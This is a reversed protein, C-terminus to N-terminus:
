LALNVEVRSIFDDIVQTTKWPDVMHYLHERFLDEEKENTVDVIEVNSSQYLRPVYKAIGDKDSKLILVPINNKKMNSLGKRKDFHKSERLASYIQIVFVKAPLGDLAKKIPVRNLAPLSDMNSMLELIRRKVAIWINKTFESDKRILLSTYFIGQDRIVKKTMLSSVTKVTHLVSKEIPNKMFKVAPLIVTDFFGLFAHKSEIGFFPNAGIRGKLYKKIGPLEYYNYDSMLFYINGMSHDLIYVNHGRDGFYEVVANINYMLHRSYEEPPLENPIKGYHMAAAIYKHTPIATLLGDFSNLGLFGHILLVVPLKNKTKENYPKALDVKIGNLGYKSERMIEIQPWTLADDDVFVTMRKDVDNIHRLFSPSEDIKGLRSYLWALARRKEAKTALFAIRKSKMLFAPTDTLELEKRDNVVTMIEASEFAKSKRTIAAVTGNPTSAIFVYDYGEKSNKKLYKLLTDNYEEAYKYIDEDRKFSAGFIQKRTILKKSLLSKLFGKSDHIDELGRQPKMRSNTFTYKIKEPHKIYKYNELIYEYAGSPSQGHALGVLFEDGGETVINANEIFDDGVAKNFTGINKFYRTEPVKYNM